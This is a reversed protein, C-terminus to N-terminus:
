LKNGTIRRGKLLDICDKKTKIITVRNDTNLYIKGNGTWVNKLGFKEICTNLVEVRVSTLDERIAVGTGKLLKKKSYIGEKTEYSKLKLFIGRNKNDIRKGVRYCLEIDRTTLNLAMKSNLLKIVEERTNEQQNEKFSFIRLNTRRSEQDMRDMNEETKNKQSELQRIKTEMTEMKNEYDSKLETYNNQLDAVAVELQSLKKEMTKVVAETVNSVITKIFSDHKICKNVAHGVASEIEERIERTLVM